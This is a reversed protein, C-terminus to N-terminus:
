GTGGPTHCRHQINGGPIHGRHQINGGPILAQPTACVPLALAAVTLLASIALGVWWFRWKLGAHM